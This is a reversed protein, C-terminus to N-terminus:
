GAAEWSECTDVGLGDADQGVVADEERFGREFARVEDLEAALAADGQEEELVDAAEHDASLGFLTTDSLVTRLQDCCDCARFHWLECYHETRTRARSIVAHPVVGRGGFWGEYEGEGVVAAILGGGAAAGVGGAEEPGPGAGFGGDHAGGLEGGDHGGNAFGDIGVQFRADLALALSHKRARPQPIIAHNRRRLRPRHHRLPQPRRLPPPRPLPLRLPPNKPHSPHPQFLLGSSPPSTFATRPVLPILPNLVLTQM